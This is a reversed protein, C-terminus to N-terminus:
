RRYTIWDLVCGRAQRLRLGEVLSAWQGGALGDAILASGQAAHKVWVGPLSALRIVPRLRSLRREVQAVVDPQTELLRGSLVITECEHVALMGATTRLVSEVLAEPSSISEVGGAFLDEKSLPGLLYAVEGDWAGGSRWGMAGSTGGLGDVIQGNVIAISATFASGVEVLCL